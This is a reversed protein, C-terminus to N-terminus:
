ARVGRVARKEALKRIYAEFGETGPGGGVVAGSTPKGKEECLAIAFEAEAERQEPRVSVEVYVSKTVGVGAIAARYDELTFTRKLVPGAGELWPLRFRALDWIHFHPDVIGQAAGAEGSGVSAMGAVAMAGVFERRTIKM